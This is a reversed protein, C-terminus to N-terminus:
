SAQCDMLDSSATHASQGMVEEICEELFATSFSHSGAEQAMDALFDEFCYDRPFYSFSKLKYYRGARMFRKSIIRALELSDEYNVQESLNIHTVGPCPSHDRTAGYRALTNLYNETEEPWGFVIVPSVSVGYIAERHQDLWALTQAITEDNEGAYLLINVKAKVGNEACAVLLRSAKELYKEPKQTKHMRLLQTPSASELGLDLISLGSAALSPLLEAKLTDVRAETRWRVKIARADFASGLGESWHKNPVFMSTEFYPTMEILGDDLLTSQLEDALADPSKLPQLKEDRELCFSCKMGCGRAIEISPQYYERRHLLSYDLSSTQNSTERSPQLPLSRTGTVLEVIRAEALGPIIIDAEPLLEKLREPFKGVVWRGGVIIKHSPLLAKVQLIFEKAWAVAYFSPLSLLIPLKSEALGYAIATTLTESPSSFHGHIVVPALGKRKLVSALSLLGYNLYQNRRNLRNNAKKTSLQGAGICTIRDMKDTSGTHLSKSRQKTNLGEM